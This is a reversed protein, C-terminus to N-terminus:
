VIPPPPLAPYAIKGKRAWWYRMPDGENKVVEKMCADSQKSPTLTSQAPGDKKECVRKLWNKRTTCDMPTSPSLTSSSTPPPSPLLSKIYAITEKKTREDLMSGKQYPDLLAAEIIVHNKWVKKQYRDFNQKMTMCTVDMSLKEEIRLKKVVLFLTSVEIHNIVSSM